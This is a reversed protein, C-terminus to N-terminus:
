EDRLPAEQIIRIVDDKDDCINYLDPDEEDITKYKDRLTEKIFSDVKQWFDSGFLIIPVKQIKKTQVLTLIEFFEDLTGFGGPFFVFAEASFTLAVKRSFFYYFEINDEVYPNLVQEDPLDINLGLSHGHDSDFAGRNAAEMVGPGGGTIVDIGVEALGRALAEAEQYYPNTEEFRASGFFTVSHRHQRIFNLGNVFERQIVHIRQRLDKDLDEITLPAEPLESDPVNILRKGTRAHIPNKSDTDIPEQTPM